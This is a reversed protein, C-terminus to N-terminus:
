QRHSRPRRADSPTNWFNGSRTPSMQLIAYDLSSLKM